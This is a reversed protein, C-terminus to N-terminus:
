RKLIAAITVLSGLISTTVTAITTWDKKDNPDRLPVNVTSGPQPHPTSKFFLWRRHATEVKGNPQLVYARGGDGQATAGGASRVYYSMSAGDTYSVGVPSNVAGRVVVVPNFKPIVISDGDVLQLNDASRADRLVAPLDIGIRGVNGRKRYFVVGGPYAATTLGGARGLIDSLRETKTVLAYQSPYKVEGLVLVMQQLGWDPQWKIMVADYPQLPVQPAPAQPIVIGPTVVMHGDAGRDFLYSSDLAVTTRVATVGAARSEPLRAIEAETLLAGEQLGGALLIADRLTMGDRYPIPLGPKRVAGGVTVFRKPRMDTTSFVMIEDGDALPLNRLPRGTTDYVATRLMEQTSDAHLRTVLVDGLFADPKLGGVSRLADYLGMGPTFGVPGPSWVDGRVSVRSSVRRTIELVRLVDGGHVPTTELEEAGVDIVNRDRGATTRESPPVIREIQVRRRDAVESFGGAARIMSGVSQTQKAEYTAPRLVAGAVRVQPGRSPVFVIDGNELRVDNSADGKLAYDYVDLTAVLQGARRVEVGRMSGSTTPGGAKYLATMVTGARSIRYSGPHKVDGHVFIQNAGMASVDVYFRTRANPGRQVGSYVRGLRTYLLDELQSRTKGAVEVEGVDPVVVFGQGNVVLKYSKEVDGTLFLVLQDGNGFRYNPDAGVVTNADFQTTENEFLDLGFVKFGSDGQQRQLERSKLLARVAVLTTDNRLARQLTDLFASDARARSVRRPKAIANLSDVMLTDSLGLARVAAFIDEGPVVTSDPRTGGPLYQDLLSEPYGQAKLRTRIEDASLGSSTIMQQLRAILSPNNQLLQQAQAPTPLTPIVQAALQGPVSVCGVVVLSRVLRTLM